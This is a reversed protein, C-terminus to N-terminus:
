GAAASAPYLLNAGDARFIHARRMDFRLKVESGVPPAECTALLVSVRGAPTEAIAVTRDGQPELVSVRGELGAESGALSVGEPRVGLLVQADNALLNIQESQGPSLALLATGVRLGSRDHSPVAPLLNVPLDGVFEAVFRNVPKDMLELM